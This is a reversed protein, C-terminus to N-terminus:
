KIDSDILSYATFTSCKAVLLSPIELL